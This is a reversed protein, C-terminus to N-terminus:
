SPPDQTSDDSVVTIIPPPQVTTISLKSVRAAPIVCVSGADIGKAQVAAQIAEAQTAGEYAEGLEAPTLLYVRM